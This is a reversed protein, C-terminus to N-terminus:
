RPGMCQVYVESDSNANTLDRTNVEISTSSPTGVYAPVFGFNASGTKGRIFTCTPIDSFMGSAINLTYDGTSNRTVSSLWSGSQSYITCPSSSCASPSTQSGSGGFHAREIRELGQTNSTVSGVLLPARNSTTWGSIPFKVSYVLNKSSIGVAQPALQTSGSGFFGFGFATQGGEAIPFIVTGQTDETSQGVIGYNSSNMKTSDITSGTPLSISQVGSVSSGVTVVGMIEMTDGIRRYKSLIVTPSTGFNTLTPTYSAWDFDSNDARVASAASWGSVPIRANITLHDGSTSIGNGLALAYTSGSVSSTSVQMTSTSTGSSYTIAYPGTSTSPFSISTNNSRQIIGFNDNGSGTTNTTDITINNPLSIQATVATPTGVVFHGNIEVFSGVRRWTFKQTSVTGFGTFTPTYTAIESIPNSSSLNFNPGIYCDDISILPENSAVSTFRIATTTAGAGFPAAIEVYKAITGPDIAITNALTTGDWTGMTTTAGSLNMVKCRWLGNTGAYGNAITVSRSTLTQAAASSDWTANGNGIGMFNTGSSVMALTGGSATWGATSNEFGPNKDKLLNQYPIEAREPETLAALAFNSFLLVSFILFLNFINKM